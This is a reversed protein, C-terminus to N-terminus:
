VNIDAGPSGVDGDGDGDGEGDMVISHAISRDDGTVESVGKNDPQKIQAVETAPIEMRSDGSGDGLKERSSTLSPPEHENEIVEGAQRAVRSAMSDTEQGGTAVETNIGGVVESGPTYLSSDRHIKPISEFCGPPLGHFLQVSKLLDMWPIVIEAYNAHWWASGLEKNVFALFNLGCQSGILFSKISSLQQSDETSSTPYSSSPAPFSMTDNLHSTLTKILDIMNSVFVRAVWCKKYSNLLHRIVVSDYASSSDLVGRFEDMLLPFYGCIPKFYLLPLQNIHRVHRLVHMWIVGTSDLFGYEELNYIKNNVFTFYQLADESAMVTATINQESSQELSPLISRSLRYIIQLKTSVELQDWNQTYFDLMGKDRCDKLPALLWQEPCFLTYVFQLNVPEKPISDSLKLAASRWSDELSYRDSSVLLHQFAVMQSILALNYESSQDDFLGDIHGTYPSQLLSELDFTDLGELGDLLTPFVLHLPTEALVNKLHPIMSPIDRTEQVLWRLGKLGYLDPCGEISSFRQIVNLDLSPWASLDLMNKSIFENFRWQRIYSNYSKWSPIFQIIISYLFLFHTLHFTSSILRFALWSQPSKYPCILDITPLIQISELNLYPDSAFESNIRLVQQIISLGPLITTTLYFMIALGVVALAIAFPVAHRTWLLELLGAFFLFLSMELLMPLSALITPVHWAEFSRHRLWRLALAQGPTRTNTQRQHERLWQKCLLGFLADVLALTLSVFWFTNIRVVSPSPIFTPPPSPIPFQNTTNQQVIQTLLMVTTNLLMSTTDAPDEQLWKYSEITFATVVASFLGAFVLLTDIDDKYGNVLDDDLIDLKKMVEEWSKEVTPNEKNAAPKNEMGPENAPKPVPRSSSQPQNTTKEKDGDSLNETKESVEKQGVTDPLKKFSSSKFDENSTM